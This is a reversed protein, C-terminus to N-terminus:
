RYEKLLDTLPLLRKAHFGKIYDIMKQNGKDEWEKSAMAIAVHIAEIKSFSDDAVEIGKKYLFYFTEPETVDKILKELMCSFLTFEATLVKNFNNYIYEAMEINNTKIAIKFSTKIDKNINLNLGLLSDQVKYLMNKPKSYEIILKFMEM